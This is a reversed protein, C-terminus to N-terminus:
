ASNYGLFHFEEDSHDRTEHGVVYSVNIYKTLARYNIAATVCFRM